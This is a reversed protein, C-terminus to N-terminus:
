HLTREAASSLTHGGWYWSFLYLCGIESTRVFGPLPEQPGRRLCVGRLPEQQVKRPPPHLALFSQGKPPVAM